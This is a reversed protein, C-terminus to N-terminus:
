SNMQIISVYEFGLQELDEELNSQLNRSANEKGNTKKQRSGEKEPTSKKVPVAASPQVTARKLIKPRPM